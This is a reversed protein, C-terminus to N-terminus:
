DCAEGEPYHDPIWRVDGHNAVSLARGPLGNTVPPQLPDDDPDNARVPFVTNTAERVMQLGATVFLPAHNADAVAITVTESRSSHGDSATSTVAYSGSAHGPPTWRFAGTVPDLSAAETAGGM